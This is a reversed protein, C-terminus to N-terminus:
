FSLGLWRNLKNDKILYQNEAIYFINIAWSVVHVCCPVFSLVIWIMPHIKSQKWDTGVFNYLSVLLSGITWIWYNPFTITM